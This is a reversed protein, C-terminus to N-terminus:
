RAPPTLTLTHRAPGPLLPTARGGVWDQHGEAYYPSLPHGSQGTPMHFIAQDLRAPSVVLRESAGFGRSNVRVTSGDGPLPDRPMNLWRGLAPVALALPHAIEAKTFLGWAADEAEGAGASRALTQTATYADALAARFLGRYDSYRDTPKLLHAPREILLRRLPEEDMFTRYRAPRSLGARELISGILLTRLAFRFQRLLTHGAQDTDAHGNWRQALQRAKRLTPDPDDPAVAELALDRYLDTSQSRTDLQLALLAPEDMPGSQRLVAGIRSARDGQAWDHGLLRARDIPLTRNNATFLVGDPPSIMMPRDPEPLPGAWGVGPKAWSRPLTGDFGSRRPLWGSVTWAIRGDRSALLVNQPPGFWSAAIRLGEELTRAEPLDFIAFNVCEPKLAHWCLALERGRADKEVVPGWRTDRIEVEVPASGRVAITERRTQFPEDGEPTLYREPHQPHPEIVVFDEFDGSLNTLGWALDDSSGVVLGAIGPLTVGVARRGALRFEVRYWTNPTMLGLHMDNALMAQGHASREAAVAWNNSGPVPQDSLPGGEVGAISWALTSERGGAGPAPSSAAPSTTPSILAAPAPPTPAAPPPPTRLDLVEPGPIPPRPAPGRPEDVLPADLTGVDPMLFDVMATPLREALAARSREFSLAATLHDWMALKVLVCDVASWAREAPDARLAFYEPPRAGLSALGANVGQAYAELLARQDPPILELVRAAVREAGFPRKQRDSELAAQGVLEALRGAPERRMLDIQFFRDQAHAFGLARAADFRDSATIVVAGRDDRALTTEHALGPLTLSGDLTPLSARLLAYGGAGAALVLAGAVGSLALLWRAWRRRRPAPTTM